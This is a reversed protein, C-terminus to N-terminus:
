CVDLGARGSRMGCGELFFGRQRRGRGDSGRLSFAVLRWVVGRAVRGRGLGRALGPLAGLFLLCIAGAIVALFGVKCAVVTLMTM